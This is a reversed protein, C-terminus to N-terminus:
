LKQIVKNKSVWLTINSTTRSHANKNIKVIKINGPLTGMRLYESPVMSVSSVASGVLGDTPSLSLGRHQAQGLVSASFFASFSSASYLFTKSFKKCLEIKRGLYALMKLLRKAPDHAAISLPHSLSTSLKRKKKKRGADRSHIVDVGLRSLNKCVSKMNVVSEIREPGEPLCCGGQPHDGSLDKEMYDKNRGCQELTIAKSSSAMGIHVFLQPQLETWIKIVKKVESYKVPLEM